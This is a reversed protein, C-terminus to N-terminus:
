SAGREADLGTKQQAVARVELYADDGLMRRIRQLRAEIEILEALAASRERDEPSATPADAGELILEPASESWGPLCRGIARLIKGGVGAEGNEVAAVSRVSIGAATAFAPRSRYGAAERANLVAGGLRARASVDYNSTSLRRAVTM